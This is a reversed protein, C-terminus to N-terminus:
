AASAPEEGDGGVKERLDDAAEEAQERLDDAAHSVSQGAASAFDTASARVDDATDSLRRSSWRFFRGLSNRTPPYVIAATLVGAGAVTVVGTVLFLTHTFSRRPKEVVRQAARQLADAIVGIDDRVDGDTLADRVGESSLRGLLDNAAGAVGRVADHFEEDTLARRVYPAASAAVRATAGMGRVTDTMKM